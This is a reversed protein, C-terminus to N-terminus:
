AGIEIAAASGKAGSPPAFKMRMAGAALRLHGTVFVIQRWVM